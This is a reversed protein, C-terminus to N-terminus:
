DEFKGECIMQDVYEVAYHITQNSLKFRDGMEIIYDVMKKRLDIQSDNLEFRFIVQKQEDKLMTEYLQM